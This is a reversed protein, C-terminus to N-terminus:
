LTAKPATARLRNRILPLPVWGVMNSFSGGVSRPDASAARAMFDRVAEENAQEDLNDTAAGAQVIGDVSVGLHKGSSFVVAPACRDDLVCNASGVRYFMGGEDDRDLVTKTGEAQPDLPGGTFGPSVSYRLLKNWGDGKVLGLTM